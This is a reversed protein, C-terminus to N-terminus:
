KSPSLDQQLVLPIKLREVDVQLEELTQYSFRQHM